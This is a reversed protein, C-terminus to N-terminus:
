QGTNVVTKFAMKALKWTRNWDIKGEQDRGMLKGVFMKRFDAGERKLMFEKAYAKSCELAAAARSPGVIPRGSARFLDAVGRELPAEPGVVTLDARERDALSLVDDPSELDVPVCRSVRAIGPNGPACVVASVEPDRALRWALAHERGASGLVLVKM